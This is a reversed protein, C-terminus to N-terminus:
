VTCSNSFSKPNYLSDAVYEDIWDEKVVKLVDLYQEAFKIEMELFKSLERLQDIENEQIAHMRARVDESTEESHVRSSNRRSLQIPISVIQEQM